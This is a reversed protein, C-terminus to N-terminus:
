IQLVLNHAIGRLYDINPRNGYESVITKIRIAVDKYVKRGQPIAYFFFFQEIKLENISQQQKLGDIFIWITPHYSGLLQSFGRHWGEVSNNTKPLDQM